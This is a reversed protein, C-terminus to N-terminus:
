KYFPPILDHTTPIKMLGHKKIDERMDRLVLFNYFHQNSDGMTKMGFLLNKLKPGINFYVGGEKIHGM